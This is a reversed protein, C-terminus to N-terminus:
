DYRDRYQQPTCQYYAQFRRYFSTLNNIGIQHAIEYIPLEHNQLLIAAKKMREENVLQKFTKGSFQKILKSTYSPDYGFDHCMKNLSGENYHSHIYNLIDDMLQENKFMSVTLNTNYQFKSVLHTILDMIFNDILDDSCVAPEFHECLINQICNTILHDKKTYFLLYHNHNTQSNMLEIMFKSILQDNPLHNIFKKSFYNENLVINVGLDNASTPAVSHPVHKDFIIVDGANLTVTDNEVTIIMTGSYVYTIVIYHFIHMPVRGSNRQHLSIIHNKNEFEREHHFIFLFDNNYPVMKFKEQFHEILKKDSTNTYTLPGQLVKELEQYNM